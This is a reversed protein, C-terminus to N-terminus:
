PHLFDGKLLYVYIIFDDLIPPWATISPTMIIFEDEDEEEEEEDEEEDRKWVESLIFLIVLFLIALGIIM